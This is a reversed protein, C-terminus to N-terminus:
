PYAFNEGKGEVVNSMSSPFIRLVNENLVTKKEKRQGDVHFLQDFHKRM